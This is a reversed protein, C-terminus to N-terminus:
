YNFPMTGDYESPQTNNGSTVISAIGLGLITIFIAFLPIVLWLLAKKKSKTM